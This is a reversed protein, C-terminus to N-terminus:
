KKLAALQQTIMGQLKTELKKSLRHKKAFAAALDKPHDGERVTISGLKDIDLNCLVRRQAKNRKQAVKHQQSRVHNEPKADPAVLAHVSQDKSAMMVEQLHQVRQINEPTPITMAKKVAAKVQQLLTKRDHLQKMAEKTGSVPGKPKSARVKSAIVKARVKKAHTQRKTVSAKTALVPKEPMASLQELQQQALMAAQTNEPSPDEM